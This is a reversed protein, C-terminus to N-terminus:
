EDRERALARARFAQAIQIIAGRDEDSMLQFSDLLEKADDSMSEDNIIEFVTCGLAEAFKHLRVSNAQRKGNEIDSVYSKSLGVADALQQVTLGKKKRLEKLRLKMACRYCTRKNSERRLYSVNRKCIQVSNAFLENM